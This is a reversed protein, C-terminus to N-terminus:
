STKAIFPLDVFYTTADYGPKLQSISSFRHSLQKSIKIKVYIIKTAAGLVVKRAGRRLVRHLLSTDKLKGNPLVAKFLPM